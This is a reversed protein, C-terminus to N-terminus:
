FHDNILRITKVQSGFQQIENKKDFLSTMDNVSIFPLSFKNVFENNVAM